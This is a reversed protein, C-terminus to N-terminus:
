SEQDGVQTDTHEAPAADGADEAAPEEWALPPTATAVAALSLDVRIALLTVDDNHLLKQERLGRVLAAFSEQPDETGLAQEVVDWPQEAAEFARLFWAALADTMLYFTDHPQWDGHVVRVHRSLDAGATGRTSVLFPGGHFQESATLPFATLLRGGRVQFLNCDGVALAEWWPVGLQQADPAPEAPAQDGAAADAAEPDAATQAAPPGQEAWDDGQEADAPPAAPVPDHHLVFGVLAAFAGLDAKQQAYWSLKQHKRVETIGRRWNDQLECIQTVFREKTLSGLQWANVLARAWQKSFSAETAGDAIACRFLDGDLLTDGPAFADEYEAEEHGKKPLWYAKAVVQM